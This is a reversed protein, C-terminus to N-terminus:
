NPLAAWRWLVILPQNTFREYLHPINWLLALITELDLRPQCFFTTSDQSNGQSKSTEETLKQQDFTTGATSKAFLTTRTPPSNLRSCFFIDSCCFIKWCLESLNKCVWIYCVFCSFLCPHLESSSWITDWSANKWFCWVIDCDHCTEDHFLITKKDAKKENTNWYFYSFQTIKNNSMIKGGQLPKLAFNGCLFM